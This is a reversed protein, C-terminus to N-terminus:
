RECGKVTQFYEAMNENFKIRGRSETMAANKIKFSEILFDYFDDDDVIQCFDKPYIDCFRFAEEIQEYSFGEMKKVEAFRGNKEFSRICDEFDIM